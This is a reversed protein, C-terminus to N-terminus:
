ESPRISAIIAQVDADELSITGMEAEIWLAVQFQDAGSEGTWLLILKKRLSTGSFGTWTREGITIPELEQVNDYLSPSLTLMDTDPAFYTLKISPYDLLDVEEKGGKCINLRDPYVDEEDSFGNKVALAKWGEPILVSVSGADYVTGRIDDPTRSDGGDSPAKSGCGVPLAACVMIAIAIAMLKKM